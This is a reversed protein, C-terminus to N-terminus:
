AGRKLNAATSCDVAPPICAKPWVHFLFLFEATVLDDVADAASHLPRDVLGVIGLEIPEDRDLEQVPSAPSFKSSPPSAGAIGSSARM